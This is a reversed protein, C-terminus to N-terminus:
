KATPNGINATKIFMTAPIQLVIRCGSLAIRIARLLERGASIALGDVVSAVAHLEQGQFDISM